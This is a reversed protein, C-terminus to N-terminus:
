WQYGIAVFGDSREEAKAMAMGDEVSGALPKECLVNTDHELCKCTQRCHLAIPSSVVALDAEHDQYFTDLDDYVEVGLELLESLRACNTAFPDVVGVIRCDDSRKDLLENVYNGGYGGIGVLVIDVM